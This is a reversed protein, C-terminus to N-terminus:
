LSFRKAFASPLTQIRFWAWSMLVILFKKMRCINGSDRGCAPCGALLYPLSLTGLTWVSLPVVPSFTVPWVSTLAPVWSCMRIWGWINAVATGWCILLVVVSTCSTCSLFALLGPLFVWVLYIRRMAWSCSLSRFLWFWPQAFCCHSYQQAKSVMSCVFGTNQFILYTGKM